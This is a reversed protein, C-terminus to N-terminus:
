PCSRIVDCSAATQAEAAIAAQSLAVAQAPDWTPDWIGYASRTRLARNVYSQTTFANTERSACVSAKYHRRDRSALPTQNHRM